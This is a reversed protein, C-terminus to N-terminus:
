NSKKFKKIVEEFGDKKFFDKILFNIFKSKNIKNKELNDNLNKDLSISMMKIDRKKAFDM